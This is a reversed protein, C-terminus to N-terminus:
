QLGRDRYLTYPIWTLGENIKQIIKKFGYVEATYHPIQIVNIGRDLLATIRHHQLDSSVFVDVGNSIAFNVSSESCGAGCFSAVSRVIKKNNGYAIIRESDFVKKVNEVYSSFPVPEVEYARGYGGVSLRDMIECREGGLGRMLFYDIGNEACDFNLHMSIVSIGAKICKEIAIAQPDNQIDLKYVGNYIAPHHTVIVNYGRKKAEIVANISFDLSYLVGNVEGGCDILIGSNDHAGFKACYEDSLSVPAIEELMEFLDHVQM